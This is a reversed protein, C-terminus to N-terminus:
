LYSIVIRRFHTHLLFCDFCTYLFLSFVAVIGGAVVVVGVGCLAGVFLGVDAFHVFFGGSSFPQTILCTQPRRAIPAVRRGIQM